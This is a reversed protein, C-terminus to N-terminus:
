RRTRKSLRQRDQPQPRKSSQGFMPSEVSLEDETDELRDQGGAALEEALRDNDDMEREKEVNEGFEEALEEEVEEAIPDVAAVVASVVNASVEGGGFAEEVEVVNEELAAAIQRQKSRYRRM